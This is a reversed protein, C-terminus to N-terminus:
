PGADIGVLAAVDLHVIFAPGARGADPREAFRVAAACERVGRVVVVLDNGRVQEVALSAADRVADRRISQEDVRRQAAGPHVFGLGALAALSHQRGLHRHRAHAPRAIPLADHLSLTYIETTATDNFFFFFFFISSLAM